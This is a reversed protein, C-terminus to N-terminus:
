WEQPTSIVALGQRHPVFALRKCRRESVSREEGSLANRRRQASICRLLRCLICAKSRVKHAASKVSLFAAMTPAVNHTLELHLPWVLKGPARIARAAQTSGITSSRRSARYSVRLPVVHSQAISLAAVCGHM